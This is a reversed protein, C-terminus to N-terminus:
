YKKVVELNNTVKFVGPVTNALIGALRKDGDNSVKGELSLNGGDVIIRMSPNHGLLYRYLGATNSLARVTDRRIRNDFTSAPLVEIKNVVTEVGEIKSVRKAINDYSIANYLKGTLTVTSGEVEYGIVDFVGYYPLSRIEKEVKQEITKAEDRPAAFVSASFILGVLSLVVLLRKM